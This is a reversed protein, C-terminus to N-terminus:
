QKYEALRANSDKIYSYLFTELEMKGYRVENNLPVSWTPIWTSDPMYWWDGASSNRISDLVIQANSYPLKELALEADSKRSSMYGQEALFKQGETAFWNVFIYAADKVETKASVSLSYGMSHAAVKGEKAITDCTPDAPDTYVKYQPLPAVGWGDKMIKEITKFNSVKEVLLALSGSMFYQVATTGNFADPYPCVNLGGIGALYCFRSFAERISPLETLTGNAIEASFDRMSAKTGNVTYDFYTKQDTEYSIKDGKDANIIDKVDLTDGANYVTGTYAGTYTKGEAVIYNPNTGALSFTWDGNGSLDELCDGGVSWGYNFWWETYYGYKTASSDNWEETCLMGLDEIEDWNMAIRDNFILQEEDGPMTWSLGDTEDAAPVYPSDSRYFGKAPVNVTIGYDAKTKGNLDKGSGDNFAALDKADVSICIVGNKELATKNYYLVTTDNYSPVGYLPDDSSSTTTEIDYYYRSVTNDYFDDLVSQDIKGTMDDLYPTYKKFYDDAFAIVDPGDNNPLQQALVTNLSGSKPIGAVKVNKEKGVTENFEKIVLNYMETLAVDGGYMFDVTVVKGSDKGGGCAVLSSMMVVALVLSLLKKKM